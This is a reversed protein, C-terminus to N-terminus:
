SRHRPKPPAPTTDTAPAQRIPRVKIQCHTAPVGHRRAAELLADSHFRLKGAWAASDTIVVLVNQANVAIDHVHDRQAAPLTESVREHLTRMAAARTALTKLASNGGTLLSKLDKSTMDFENHSTTRLKSSEILLKLRLYQHFRDKRHVTYRDLPLGTSFGPRLTVSRFLWRCSAM